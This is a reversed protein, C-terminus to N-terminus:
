GVEVVARPLGTVNSLEMFKAYEQVTVEDLPKVLPWETGRKVETSVYHFSKMYIDKAREEDILRGSRLIKTPGGPMRLAWIKSARHAM